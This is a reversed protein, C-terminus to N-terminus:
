IHFNLADVKGIDYRKPTGKLIFQRRFQVFYLEIRTDCRELLTSCLARCLSASYWVRIVREGKAAGDRGWGHAVFPQM